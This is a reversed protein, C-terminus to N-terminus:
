GTGPSLGETVEHTSRIKGDSAFPHCVAFKGSEDVVYVWRGGTTQFFGRILVAGEGSRKLQLNVHYTQGARINEPRGMTFVFDTRFQGEKVEPYVKTVELKYNEGDRTFDASALEQVVREM